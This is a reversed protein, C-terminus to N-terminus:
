LPKTASAALMKGRRGARGRAVVKPVQFTIFFLVLAGNIQTNSTFSNRGSSWFFFGNNIVRRCSGGQDISKMIVVVVTYKLLVRLCNLFARKYNFSGTFCGTLGVLFDFFFYQFFLSGTFYLFYIIIM